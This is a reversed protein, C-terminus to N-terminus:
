TLEECWVDKKINKKLEYNRQLGKLVLLQGYRVLVVGSSLKPQVNERTKCKHIKNNTMKNQLLSLDRKDFINMNLFCFFWEGFRQYM